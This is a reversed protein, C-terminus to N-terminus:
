RIFRGETSQLLHEFYPSAEILIPDRGWVNNDFRVYEVASGYKSKISEYTIINKSMGADNLHTLMYAPEVFRGGNLSRGIAREIATEMKVDVFGMIPKYGGKVTAWDLFNIMKDGSKMTGDFLIHRNQNFSQQFISAIIDDAERHYNAANWSLDVDDFAALLGKIKDSDVHVYKGEHGPFAKNMMTSKGAGPFGGTMLFDPAGKAVQSNQVINRSIRAHLIARDRSWHGVDLKEDWSTTTQGTRTFHTQKTDIKSAQLKARHNAVQKKADPATTNKAALIKDAEKSKMASGKRYAKEQYKNLKMSDTAKKNVNKIDAKTKVEPEVPADVSKDMNGIPDLICYCSQRCVTHGAGPLGEKAWEDFTKVAGMLAVCDPCVKHGAVTVWMYKAERPKGGKMLGPNAMYTAYQGLRSGQNVAGVTSSKIDNRLKGFIRGGTQMDAELSDEIFEMSMGSDSMTKINKDLNNTFDRVGFMMNDMTQVLLSELEPTLGAEFVKVVEEFDDGFIDGYDLLSKYAM